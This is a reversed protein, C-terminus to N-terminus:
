DTLFLLLIGAIVGVLGITRLTKDPLELLQRYTERLRSPSLFPMLGELILLLAIATLLDNWNFTM